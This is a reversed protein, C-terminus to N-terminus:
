PLRYTVGRHHSIERWVKTSQWCTNDIKIVIPIPNIIENFNVKSGILITRGNKNLFFHFVGESRRYFCYYVNANCQLKVFRDGPIELTLPGIQIYVVKTDLDVLADRLGTLKKQKIFFNDRNFAKRDHIVGHTIKAKSCHSGFIYVAGADTGVEGNHRAGVAIVEGSVSVSGGFYDNAAPDSATLKAEENWDAGDFKYVYTAGANNNAFIAGVVIVDESASVSFGFEYRGVADSATLKAEENWSTGDFRYVYASGTFDNDGIAGVVIMYGNVYVTKGFQKNTTADSATLKAEEVWNTGDFRFVYASGEADCDCDGGDDDGYAGVVMLDGSVSVSEGFFDKAETDSGIVKYNETIAFAHDNVVFVMLIGMM